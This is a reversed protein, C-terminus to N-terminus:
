GVQANSNKVQSQPLINGEADVCIAVVRYIPNAVTM